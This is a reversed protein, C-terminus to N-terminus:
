IVLRLSFMYSTGKVKKGDEGSGALPNLPDRKDNKKRPNPPQLCNSRQRVIQATRVKRLTTAATVSVYLEVSVLFERPSDPRTTPPHNWSGSM